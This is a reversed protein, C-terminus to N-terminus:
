SALPSAIPTLYTGPGVIREPPMGPPTDAQIRLVIGEVVTRSGPYGMKCCVVMTVLM